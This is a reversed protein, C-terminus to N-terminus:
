CGSEKRLAVASEAQLGLGVGVGDVVVVKGADDEARPLHIGM